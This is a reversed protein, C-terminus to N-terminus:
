GVRILFGVILQFDNSQPVSGDERPIPQETRFYEFETKLNFIETVEVIFAAEGIHNTNGITTFVINSQWGLDLEIDDTIDFEWQTRVPIFGDSQPNPVNPETSIARLFQYGLGCEFDWEVRNTDFIQVGGLAAPTARFKINAFRDHFFAAAAPVVYFRDSVFLTVGVQGLHRNVNVERNAAGFTGEYLLVTSTRQDHRGLGFDANISSQNSNGFAGTFGVGLELVWWDRERQGGKLISILESRPFTKIGDETEVIVEDRTIMGRGMADVRNRFVYTKIQPSHLQDVNSWGKRILDTKDGDFEFDGNRMWNLDGRLWEGSTLRLWDKTDDFEVWCGTPFGTEPDPQARIGEAEVGAQELDETRDAETESVQAHLASAQSLITAIVLVVLAVLRLSGTTEAM